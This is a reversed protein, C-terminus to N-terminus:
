RGLATPISSKMDASAKTKLETSTKTYDTIMQEVFNKKTPM